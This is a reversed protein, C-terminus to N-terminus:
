YAHCSRVFFLPSVRTVSRQMLKGLTMRYDPVAPVGTPTASPQADTPTLTTTPQSSPVDSPQLSPPQTGSPVSSPLDSPESSPPESGTPNSSPSSSIMSPADSPSSSPANSPATSFISPANSPVGSFISPAGSPASSLISPKPSATPALTFELFAQTVQTFPSDFVGKVVNDIYASTIGSSMLSLIEEEEPINPNTAFTLVASEYEMYINYQVDPIQADDGELTFDLNLQADLLELGAGAYQTTLFDLFYEETALRLAEYQAETPVTNDNSAYSIFWRPVTRIVIGLTPTATPSLTPSSNPDLVTDIVNYLGNCAANDADTVGSGDFTIPSVGVDLTEGTLLTTTPGAPFASAMTEGPIVHYLLFNQLMDINAPDLLPEVVMPDANM